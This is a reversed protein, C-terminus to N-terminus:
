YASQYSDCAHQYHSKCSCSFLIFLFDSSKKCVALMIFGAEYMRCQLIIKKVKGDIKM